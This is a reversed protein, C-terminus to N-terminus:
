SDPVARGRWWLWAFWASPALLAFGIGVMLDVALRVMTILRDPPRYQPPIENLGRIRTSPSFGSLLSAGSPIDIGYRPQGDVMVGGLTEPVHTSTEPLM